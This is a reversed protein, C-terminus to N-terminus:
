SHVGCAALFRGRDFRGNSEALKDAFARATQERESPLSAIISAIFCFHQRTMSPCRYGQDQM